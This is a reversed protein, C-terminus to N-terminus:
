AGEPEAEDAKASAAAPAKTPALHGGELLAPINSGALEDDSVVEGPKKGAVERDGVVMYSAM